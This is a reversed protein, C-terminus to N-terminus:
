ATTALPTRVWQSLNRFVLEALVAGYLVTLLSVAIGSGLQSPDALNALMLIVGVITGVVGSAWALHYGRRFVALHLERREPTQSQGDPGRLSVKLADVVLAPGFAAWLGGAVLGTVFLLSPLHLFVSGSGGAAAALALLGLAFATGSVKSLLTMTQKGKAYERALLHTAGLRDAAQRFAEQEDLGCVLRADITMRLHDELEDIEDADLATDQDLRRRWADIAHNLEFM